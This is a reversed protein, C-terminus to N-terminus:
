EAEISAIHRLWQNITMDELMMGEAVSRQRVNELVGIQEQPTLSEWKERHKRYYEAFRKETAERYEVNEQDRWEAKNMLCYADCMLFASYFTAQQTMVRRTFQSILADNSDIMNNYTKLMYKPDHRCVSEDRWKWLYFPQTCYRVGGGAMSQALINFYSDEHVTLNPDFRIDNDVLYQRRYAKGHVFTQDNDRNHYVVANTQPERLEERFASSFADFGSEMERSIIYLGCVDCFMDDADCFMVYDADSADLALNRTASVGQKRGCTVATVSFPYREDWEDIPLESAEPGDYAIIVGLSDLDVGQQVLLSDLLPEMEERTEQWHPVLIDLTKM